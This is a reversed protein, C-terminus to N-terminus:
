RDEDVSIGSCRFSDWREGPLKLTLKVGDPRLYRIFGRVPDGNEDLGEFRFVSDPRNHELLTLEYTSSESNLTKTWWKITQKEESVEISFRLKGGAGPYPSSSYKVGGCSVETASVGTSIL